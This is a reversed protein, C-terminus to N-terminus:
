KRKLFRRGLIKHAATILTGVNLLVVAITLVIATVYWLTSEAIVVFSLASLLLINIIMRVINLRIKIYRRTSISRIIFVLLYSAVTAIAAGYAGYDPILLVNLAINSGAGALMTILTVVSRKEVMYISGMFSVFCSFITAMILIPIYRWAEFYAEDVVIMMIYRCTIILGAAAVFCLGQLSAFVQSFFHQRKIVNKEEVSSLQWAEIFITSAISIITPIKYSAAYLGNAAEGIYITIFFRDSVNTIWWFMQNPILPLAYFLMAKVIAKNLKALKFFKRLGAVFFLFLCSVADAAIVALLYGFVDLQMVVLFLVNFLINFVTSMLGDLAYLRVYHQSRVFQSFLSRLLSTFVYVFLLPALDGIYTVNYLFPTTLAFILLGIFLVVSGTTFVSVRNYGKDIGFRVISHIIGISVLPLLLNATQMIMDARGFSDPSLVRTYLPLLFFVLLKSSFTSVALLVTNIALKRYQNGM